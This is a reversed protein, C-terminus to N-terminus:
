AKFYTKLSQGTIPSNDMDNEFGLLDCITPVIDISEGVVDQIVIGRKIKSKPGLVMCFIKKSNEDGTHDVAFRGYGDLITNPELNRGFEPAAILITDDAMGPTQQITDWLKALAYDAKRLNSCYETFNGHGIDSEQMNVALLEPKFTEIIRKATYMNTIDPNIYRGIEWPDFSSDLLENAYSKLFDELALRVQLDNEIGSKEKYDTLHRYHQSFFDQLPSLMEYEENSFQKIHKIQENFFNTAQVMNAGYKAGYGPYNSYNLYPFPGSRDCVWWANLSTSQPSNHKRYYEFVTPYGPPQMTQINNSYVGTLAIAHGAYHLTKNNNFRFNKFLVGENALPIKRVSPIPDLGSNIDTSISEDGPLMNPM